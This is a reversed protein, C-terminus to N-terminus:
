LEYEMERKKTGLLKSLTNQYDRMIKHESIHQFNQVVHKGGAIVHKIPNSNSAFILSDLIFDEGKCLLAPNNPDLVIFDARKGVEISGAPHGLAQAGGRVSMNFLYSGVSPENKTKSITREQHKLRQGYELMRLEEIMNVSIHSDSGIGFKGGEQIYNALNFLGDGLNAETTPCLGAIAGSRALNHTESETMHTAHVLCWHKDVNMNELLWEVPRVGCWMLCDNVEKNQEAIHIHIPSQSDFQHMDQTAAKLMEPSVARLSHHALGIKIQPDNKYYSKLSTIIEIIQTENNIFRKQGETPQLGGFGSYAYLVPMHTTSIGAEKAASIVYKSILARDEYPVGNPQHHIYHFEGVSTYGAKLMEVYLQAAIAQMDEPTLKELFQYMIQRWTWFSDKECSAREALGAMARQFAHSHLNPMGPLTFGDMIVSANPKQDIKIDAIWGDINVAILVNRKWGDPLLALPSFYTIEDM